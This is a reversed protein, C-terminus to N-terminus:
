EVDSESGYAMLIRSQETRRRMEYERWTMQVIQSGDFEGDLESNLKVSEETRRTDGWSFDDFKWYAYAPLVLNWIPLSAIYALMWAIYIPNSVTVLILVAPLGFVIGMLILSIIPKIPSFIAVFIIYFTFTISAPLVLTGVLNVIIVFQMSFCFTGCLDRVLALEMLNHVTSNIWRRRQSLLVSFKDPAVTKCVAKPVFVQKRRPFTRLMLSSLYRDEGLLLLNKRHLSDLVNESYESVIDANALIPVWVNFDKPAKIRYMCFCGPLCTVGGFVSEFAKSQHHSIYYEFVQIITVWSQSKNSIKTEGCLGLIEPERVLEATLHSVSDPYVLTDADVMLVAEYFSAMLGTIRWIMTLIEFELPSMRDNYTISQLFSMLIIQSDRKGRNGPKSSAIEAPTGCKVVLLVPVKQQKDPSVTTNDYKYLGGYVKAMNHRMIGQTVSVYSYPRVEEKTLALNRIMELCIDPTSRGNGAGTIKGDCIIVMLKHSNPYDSTAISDLTTRIGKEDESYCTVLCMIHILPFGYPEWDIRPQIVSDSMVLSPDLTDVDFNHFPSLDRNASLVSDTQSTSFQGRNQSKLYAETTMTLYKPEYKQRSTSVDPIVSSDHDLLEDDATLHYSPRREPPVTRLQVASSPDSAWADIESNRKKLERMSSNSVGQKPAVFWKFYCAALFQLMVLTLVFILSVYLVISASICGVTSTDISGVKIIEQLCQAVKRDHPSSLLRTIDSGSLLINQKIEDFKYPYELDDSQIWNLLDMDLVAGNYVMFNRSTNSVDEWSYEVDGLARLSYYVQRAKPSTHCSYGRYHDSTSNPITSGDLDLLKCPMYWAIQDGEHPISCNSRPNILGRCHGNVNQFLLSADKGGANIPDYLINTGPEIGAAKPHSSATLDFAKGNIVLHGSSVDHISIGHGTGDCMTRTFGFTLFAVIGELVLIISILAIKERWAYQRGATRLGCFKLLCNPVCLTVLYCYWKWLPLKVPEQELIQMRHYNTSYFPKETLTAVTHDLSEVTSTKRPDDDINTAPIPPESGSNSKNLWSVASTWSQASRFSDTRSTSGISIKSRERRLLSRKRTASQENSGLEKSVDESIGSFPFPM